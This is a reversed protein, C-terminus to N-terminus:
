ERTGGDSREESKAAPVPCDVHARVFAKSAAVWVSLLVPLPMDYVEGCHTCAFGGGDRLVV